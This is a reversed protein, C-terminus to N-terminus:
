DEKTVDTLRLHSDHTKKKVYMTQIPLVTQQGHSFRVGFVFIAIFLLVVGILAWKGMNEVFAVVSLVFWDQRFMNWDGMTNLLARVFPSLSVTIRANECDRAFAGVTAKIEAKSCVDTRLMNQADEWESTCTTWHKYFPAISSILGLVVTACALWKILNTKM